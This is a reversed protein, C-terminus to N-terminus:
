RPICNGWCRKATTGLIFISSGSLAEDWNWWKPSGHLSRSEGHSKSGPTSSTLFWLRFFFFFFFFSFFLFLFPHCFFLFFFRFDLALDLNLNHMCALCPHFLRIRHLITRRWTVRHWLYGSVSRYSSSKLEGNNNNGKSITIMMMMMM